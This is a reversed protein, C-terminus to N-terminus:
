RRARDAAGAFSRAFEILDFGMQLTQAPTLARLMIAERRKKALREADKM